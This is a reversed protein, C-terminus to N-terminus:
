AVRSAAWPATSSMSVWTHKDIAEVMTGEHHDSAKIGAEAIYRFASGEELATVGAKVSSAKWFADASSTASKLMARQEFLKTFIVYWSGMSM